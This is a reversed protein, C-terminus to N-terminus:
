YVHMSHERKCKPAKGLWIGYECKRYSEGVLKYGKVCGYYATGSNGSETVNVSGYQFENLSPCKIVTM